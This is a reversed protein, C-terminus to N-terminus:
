CDLFLLNSMKSSCYVKSCNNSDKNSWVFHNRWRNLSIGEEQFRIIIQQYFTVKAAVTVKM